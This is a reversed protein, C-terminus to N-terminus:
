AKLFGDFEGDKLSGSNPGLLRITYYQSPEWFSFAWTTVGDVGFYVGDQQVGDIYHAYPLIPSNTGDYGFSLAADEPQSTRAVLPQWDFTNDSQLPGVAQLEGDACRIATKAL